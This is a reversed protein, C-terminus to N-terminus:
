VHARGIQVKNLRSGVKKHIKMPLELEGVCNNPEEAVRMEEEDDETEEDERNKKTKKFKDKLQVLADFLTYIMSMVECGIAILIAVIVVLDLREFSVSNKLTSNQVFSFICLVVLFVLIALEQFVVRLKVWISKFIRHKISEMTVILLYLLQVTSIVIIQARPIGQLGVIAMQIVSWRVRERVM